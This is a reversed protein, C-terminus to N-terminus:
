HKPYIGLFLIALDHPLKTTLIKLLQRVTRWQPQGIKYKWWSHIFYWNSTREARIRQLQLGRPTTTTYPPSAGTYRRRRSLVASKMVTEGTTYDGGRAGKEQKWGQSCPEGNIEKFSQSKNVINEGQSLILLRYSFTNPPNDKRWCLYPKPIGM